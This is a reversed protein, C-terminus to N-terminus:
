IEKIECLGDIPMDAYIIIDNNTLKKYYLVASQLGEDDNVMFMTVYSEGLKHETHPITLTYYILGQTWENDTFRKVYRKITSDETGQNISSMEAIRMYLREVRCSPEPLDDTGENNAIATLYQETRSQPEETVANGNAISTLLEEIDSM